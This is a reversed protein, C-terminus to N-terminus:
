RYEAENAKQAHLAKKYELLAEPSDFILQSSFDVSVTASILEHIPTHLSTFAVCCLQVILLIFLIALAIFPMVNFLIMLVMMIPLLTGLVCKGLMTRIFLQLTNMRVGDVRMVGVSFVKKGITQGNKFLLPIVFEFLLYPILVAFSTIILSFNIITMDLRNVEDDTAFKAYADDLWKRQDETLKNYDEESIDFDVAYDTEYRTRIAERDNVVGEYDLVTSFLFAVGVAAIVLLIIDCLYASARKWMSAKQVDYIM